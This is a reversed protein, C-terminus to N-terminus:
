REGLATRDFADPLLEQITWRRRAGEPLESVVIAQSGVEWLVQRCGGCPPAPEASGGVVAIADIVREEAAIAAAIANREACMSMPYSANEVNVGVFTRGGALM